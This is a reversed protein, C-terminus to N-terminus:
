STALKEWKATWLRPIKLMRRKRMVRRRHPSKWIRCCLNLLPKKRRRKKKKKRRKSRKRSSKKRKKRLDEAKLEPKKAPVPVPEPAPEPKPEPQPAPEPAKVEDPKAELEPQPEEQAPPPPTPKPEEKPPEPTEEKPTEQPPTPSPKPAMTKEGINVVDIPVPMWLEQDRKFSPVGFYAVLFLLVHLLVAYGAAKKLQM